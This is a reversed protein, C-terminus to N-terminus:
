QCVSREVAWSRCLNSDLRDMERNFRDEFWKPGDGPDMLLPKKVPKDKKIQKIVKKM